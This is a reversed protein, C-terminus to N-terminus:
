SSGPPLCFSNIFRRAASIFRNYLLSPFVMTSSACIKPTLVLVTCLSKFHCSPFYNWDRPPSSYRQIGHGRIPTRPLSPVPHSNLLFLSILSPCGGGQSKWEVNSLVPKTTRYNQYCAPSRWFSLPVSSERDPRSHPFFPYSFSKNM